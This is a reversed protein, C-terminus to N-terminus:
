KVSIRFHEHKRADFIHNQILQKKSITQHKDYLPFIPKDGLFAALASFTSPPSAIVDCMSLEIMNEMFHGTGTAYGTGFQVDLDGFAEERQSEDSAVLFKVNRHKYIEKIQNLFGVYEETSFFYRGGRWGRYDDQRILVGVLFDGNSRIRRLHTEAIKKYKELPQFFPRVYDCNKELAQWAEVRWGGLLTCRKSSIKEFIKSDELQIIKTVLDRNRVVKESTISQAGPILNALRHMRHHFNRIRGHEVKLNDMLAPIWQYRM